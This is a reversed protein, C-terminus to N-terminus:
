TRPWRTSTSKPQVRPSPPTHLCGISTLSVFPRPSPRGTPLIRTRCSQQPSPATSASSRGLQPCVGLQRKPSPLRAAAFPAGLAAFWSRRVQDVAFTSVDTLDFGATSPVRLEVPLAFLSGGRPLIVAGPKLLRRRADCVTTLVGEGLLQDDVIECVLLDFQGGIADISASTSMEGVVRVQEAYGNAATIHRAVAALAPVMELSVVDQAGARAAMMALLGSGSGIDLARM